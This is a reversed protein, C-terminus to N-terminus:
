RPLPSPRFVDLYKRVRDAPDNGVFVDSIIAVADAGSELVGRAKELSIGGIAVIPLETQDRLEKITHLGTAVRNSKGMTNTPFVTGLALYDAGMNESELAEKLDNNSRGIFTEHALIQQTRLAVRVATETPLGLTEDM